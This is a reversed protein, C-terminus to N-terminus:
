EEFNFDYKFKIRKDKEIKINEFKLTKLYNLLFNYCKSDTAEDSISFVTLVQGKKVLTIDYSYVGSLNLGISIKKFEETKILSDIQTTASYSVVEEDTNLANFTHNKLKEFDWLFLNQNIGIYAQKSKKLFIFPYPMPNRKFLRFKTALVAELKDQTSYDYIEVGTKMGFVSGNIPLTNSVGFLNLESNLCFDANSYTSKYYFVRDLQGSYPEIRMIHFAMLTEASSTPANQNLNKLRPRSLFLLHKDDDTFKMRFVVDLEDEVVSITQMEPLSFFEILRKNKKAIKIERKRNDISKLNAFEAKTPIYSVALITGSKNTAIAEAEPMEITKITKGTQLEVWELNNENAVIITSNSAFAVSLIGNKKEFVVKGTQADIVACETPKYKTSTPKHFVHKLIIYKGDSSFLPKAGNQYGSLNIKWLLKEGQEFASKSIKNEINILYFRGGSSSVCLLKEDFSTEMGLIANYAGNYEVSRLGDPITTQSFVTFFLFISLNFYLKIM